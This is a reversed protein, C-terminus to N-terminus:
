KAAAAGKKRKKLQAMVFLTLLAGAAGMAATVIFALSYDGSTEKVTAALRPGIFAAAAFAFFMIGYNQGLHKLGFLDATVTPFIGLLGGFCLGICCIM